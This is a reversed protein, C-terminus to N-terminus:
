LRIVPIFLCTSLASIYMVKQPSSQIYIHNLDNFKSSSQELNKKIGSYITMIVNSLKLKALLVNLRGQGM